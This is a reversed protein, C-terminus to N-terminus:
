RLTAPSGLRPANYSRPADDGGDRLAQPRVGRGPVLQQRFSAGIAELVAGSRRSLVAPRVAFQGGASAEAAAVEAARALTQPTPPSTPVGPIPKLEIGRHAVTMIDHWTMAPLVGGTLNNMGTSDDNGYWVAGILNGTFGVFWADKYDNTTGTKGAVAIGDLRARRGTGEETVKNLMFNLDDVASAPLVQEPPPANESYRYIPENRDSRVELAAHPPIRKGGNAFVSFGAAQDMVTMEASGIPLTVQDVIPTTVGVRKLTEIVKARGAKNNGNGIAATLQIPITNISKALATTLSVAGAFSHGYNSPCWNGICYPRDVVITNPKFRGTMLATVYVYPKFSSGPQRKGDTARNFQSTGYDRGGVIARVAGSTDMIVVAAQHVDYQKGYQRLLSEVTQEATTQIVPDFGTKVILVRNDGLAGTEALKKIDEFAWDLYYDPSTDRKREVPTAPNQRAGFVQAETMFGADVLNSLVDNARARAAPLNVHPAFKTPAKFLGALMAAESLSVDKINKGFYFEAAAQIGFAGGGMYARDLYLELIRRKTLHAELWLSLFAENVKRELTRENSLFLNKALQQTLSSGGQVTGGARANAVVARFLGVVDIGFHEYFRRDETAIVARILQDPYDDLSASDDRRIGRRGIEQGHRDLFTVALDQQKLWNPNETARMAPQSLGLLIFVGGLGLTLGDCALDVGAKRWGTVHFRDMFTVFREYRAKSRQWADYLGADIASDVGLAFRKFRQWLGVTQFDRM